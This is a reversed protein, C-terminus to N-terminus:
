IRNESFYSYMRETDAASKQERALSLTKMAALAEKDSIRGDGDTDILRHLQRFKHPLVCLRSNENFLHHTLIFFAATLTISMYIDRTGMWCVAFILIERAVYNRLYAEQSDSLKVTIYKSGINMLIMIIGAFLKSNNLAAIGSLGQMNSGPM